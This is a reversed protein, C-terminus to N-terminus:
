TRAEVSLVVAAEHSMVFGDGDDRLAEGFEDHYGNHEFAQSLWPWHLM